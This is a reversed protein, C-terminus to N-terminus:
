KLKGKEKEIEISIEDAKKGIIKSISKLKIKMSEYESQVSELYNLKLSEKSLVETIERYIKESNRDNPLSVYQRVKIIKEKKEDEYINVKIRRIIGMAQTIRYEHAAKSEDWEFQKHLATNKNKAYKVIDEPRLLGNHQRRIEELEQKVKKIKSNSM